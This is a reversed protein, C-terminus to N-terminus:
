LESCMWVCVCVCVCVCWLWGRCWVLTSQRALNVASCSHPDSCWSVFVIKWMWRRKMMARLSSFQARRAYLCGCARNIWRLFSNGAISLSTHTPIPIQSHSHSVSLPACALLCSPPFSFFLVRPSGGVLISRQEKGNRFLTLTSINKTYLLGYISM